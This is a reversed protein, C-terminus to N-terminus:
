PVSSVQVPKQTATTEDLYRFRVDGYVMEEWTQEGWHVEINPNPNAKNQTSNDYVASYVLRTGKPLLKPETLEYSTQWNFDYRPVSLLTETRGDPYTAVFSAGTGRSHSHAMLTYILTDRDFTRTALETHSKVNPPIKLRANILVTNSFSSRRSSAFADSRSARRHSRSLAPYWARSASNM